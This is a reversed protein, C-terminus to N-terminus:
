PICRGTKPSLRLRGPVSKLDDEPFIIRFGPETINNTPSPATPAVKLEQRRQSAVRWWDYVTDLDKAGQRLVDLYDAAMQRFYEVTYKKLERLYTLLQQADPDNKAEQLAAVLQGRLDDADKAQDPVYRLLGSRAASYLPTTFDIARVSAVLQPDLLGKALLQGVVAEDIASRVPVNFAHHTEVLGPTEKAAFRANVKKLVGQYLNVDGAIRGPQGALATDVFFDQPLEVASGDKVRKSFPQTDGRLNIEMPAFLSRLHQRLTLPGDKRAFRAAVLKAAGQEVRQGLHGADTAKKWLQSAVQRTNKADAGEELTLTGLPLPTDKRFWDNHPEWLEKMIPAGLTHCASCRLRKGFKAPQQLYVEAVDALIDNSDGRYKWQGTKGDGILEWFNYVEKTYDWAILEMMLQGPQAHIDIALKGNQPESFFGLFFEADGVKGGPIPGTYTEFFSFSGFRPNDHGRNAVIHTKLTGGLQLLRQRVALVDRPVDAGALLGRQVADDKKVDEPQAPAAFAPLLALLALVAGSTARCISCLLMPNERGNAAGIM